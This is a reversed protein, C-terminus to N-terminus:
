AGGISVEPFLAMGAALAVAIVTPALVLVILVVITRHSRTTGACKAWFDTTTHQWWVLM